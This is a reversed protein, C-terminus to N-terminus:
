AVKFNNEIAMAGIGYEIVLINEELSTAPEKLELMFYNVVEQFGYDKIPINLIQGPDLEQTISINNLLAIDFIAPITGCYRIAIDQLSQNNLVTIQM